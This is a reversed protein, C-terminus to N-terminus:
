VRRARSPSRLLALFLFAFLVRTCNAEAAARPLGLSILAVYLFHSVLFFFVCGEPHGRPLSFEWAEDHAKRGRSKGREDGCTAVNAM